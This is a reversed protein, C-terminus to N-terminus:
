KVVHSPAWSITNSGGMYDAHLIDREVLRPPLKDIVLPQLLAIIFGKLANFPIIVTMVYALYNDIPFNMVKVYLPLAVFYNLVSMVGTLGVILGVGMTLKHKWSQRLGSHKLLWHAPMFMVVTSLWSMIAGIPIMNQGGKILFNGFDRIFAVTMLGVPGKILLGILAMLDSFDFKLFPAPPFIPFDIFRLVIGWAGLIALLILDRVKTNRM